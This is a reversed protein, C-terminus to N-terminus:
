SSPHNEPHEKSPAGPPGEAQKGSSEGGSGPDPPLAGTLPNALRDRLAGQIAAELKELGGEFNEPVLVREMVLSVIDKLQPSHRIMHSIVQHAVYDKLLDRSLPRALWERVRGGLDSSPAVRAGRHRLVIRARLDRPPDARVAGVAAAEYLADEFQALDHACEDCTELHAALTRREAEDLAGLAYAPLDETPHREEAMSM